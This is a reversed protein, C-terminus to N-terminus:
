RKNCEKGTDGSIGVKWAELEREDRLQCIPIGEQKFASASSDSRHEQEPIYLLCVPIRQMQVQRLQLIISPQLFASLLFLFTGIDLWQSCGTLIKHLPYGQTPIARVLSEPFLYPTRIDIYDGESEESEVLKVM